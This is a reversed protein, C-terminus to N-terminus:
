LNPNIQHAEYKEYQQRSIIVIQAALLSYHIHQQTEHKYIQLVHHCDGDPSTWLDEWQDIEVDPVHTSLAIPISRNIAFEWAIAVLGYCWGKEPFGILEM